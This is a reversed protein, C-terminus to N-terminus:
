ENEIGWGENRPSATQSLPLFAARKVIYEIIIMVYAYAAPAAHDVFCKIMLLYGIRSKEREHKRFWDSQSGKSLASDM